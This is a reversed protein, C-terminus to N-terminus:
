FQYFVSRNCQTFLHYTPITIIDDTGDLELSNYKGIVGDFWAGSSTCTGVTTNSGTAGISITGTNLNGSSDNATTGSCEDLKWHAIPHGQNYDWAIQSPTRIYDYIRVQDLYGDFTRDVASGNGIVITTDDANKTGSGVANVSITVPTGNIYITPTDSLTSYNYTITLYNWRNLTYANADTLWCQRAVSWGTCFSMQQTAQVSIDFYQNTGSYGGTHKKLIRSFSAEGYSRPYFWTSITLTSLNNLSTATANNIIYDDSSNFEAAKGLKGNAWHSGTGNWTGTNGNGSSDKASTGTADEFNWEAVPPSCPDASGPVCYQASASNSAVKGGSLASTDSLSGFSIFSKNNYDQKIEEVSLAINYFKVEDILGEFNAFSNGINLNSANDVSGSKTSIALTGVQKGDVYGVANSSRNFVVVLHHWTDDAISTSGLAGETGGLTDGILVHPVGNLLGFRWGSIGAGAGKNFLNKNNAVTGTKIWTSITFDGTGFDLNPNDATYIYQLASLKIGKGYKGENSRTASVITNNIASGISGSNNNTTGSSEEFKYHAILNNKIAGSNNTFTSLNSNTTSKTGKSNFNAMAQPSSLAYTFFKLEDFYIQGYNTSIQAIKIASGSLSSGTTITVQQWSGASLTSKLKGNVYITPSTIGTTTITGGVLDIYSAGNISLLQESTTSPKVWFSITQINAITNAITVVDNVGDFSLCSISVCNAVTTDWTAGSLAGTNGGSASDNIVTSTGEDFKYYSIPGVSKEQSALTQIGLGTAATSFEAASFGNSVTSNGYYMYYTSAGAPLSDFYVHINATADCDVVYYPLLEGNQKTFRLDGCDAQFKTTDTADFSPVSVYVTTELSTHSPISIAQRYLWSDDYWGASVKTTFKSYLYISPGVLILFGLAIFLPLRSRHSYTTPRLHYTM